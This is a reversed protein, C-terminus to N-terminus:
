VIKYHKRVEDLDPMKLDFDSCFVKLRGLVVKDGRVIDYENFENILDEVNNKEIFTNILKYIPNHIFDRYSTFYDIGSPLYKLSKINNHACYLFGNIKKPAHELSELKCGSCKFNGNIVEPCGELTKLDNWSCDFEYNVEKPCGKLSTLNNNECIFKGGIEEPCYKLSELKNHHCKFDSGVKKPAGELSILNNHTCAFYGSVYNFNLPLYKLTLLLSVSGQVDISLNDNITYNHIKHIRCVQHIDDETTPFGPHKLEKQNEFIKYPKIHNM